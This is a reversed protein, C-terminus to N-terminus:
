KMLTWFEDINWGLSAIIRREFCTGERDTEDVSEPTSLDADKESERIRKPRQWALGPIHLFDSSQIKQPHIVILGSSIARIEKQYEM